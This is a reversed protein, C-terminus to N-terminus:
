INHWQKNNVFRNGHCGAARCCIGLICWHCSASLVFFVQLECVALVSSIDRDGPRGAWDWRFRIFERIMSVLRLLVRWTIIVAIVHCPPLTFVLIWMKLGWVHGDSSLNHYLEDGIQNTPPITSNRPHIGMRNSNETAQM